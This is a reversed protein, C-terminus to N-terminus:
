YPQVIDYLPPNTVTNGPIPSTIITNSVLSKVSFFYTYLYYLIYAAVLLFVVGGITRSLGTAPIYRNVTEM